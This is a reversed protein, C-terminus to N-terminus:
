KPKIGTLDIQVPIPSCEGVIEAVAAASAATLEAAAAAAAAAAAQAPASAAYAAASAAAVEPRITRVVSNSCSIRGLVSSKATTTVVCVSADVTTLM